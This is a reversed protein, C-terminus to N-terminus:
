SRYRYALKDEAIEELPTEDFFLRGERWGLTKTVADIEGVLMESMYAIIVTAVVM